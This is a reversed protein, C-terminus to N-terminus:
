PVPAKPLKDDPLHHDCIIVDIGFGNANNVQEMAKIGCDLTIILSFDNDNAFEVGKQSLGYGENHRDPIYYSVNPYISNLYTYVLSVATTGDVDYDGYVLINEQNDIAKLIRDVAKEMDKMLFPDYLDSLQPSFYKKAKDFTDIGRQILIASLLDPTNIESSLKKVASEQPKPKLKWRNQM